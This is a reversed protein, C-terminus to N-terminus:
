PHWRMAIAPRVSLTQNAAVLRVQPVVALHTSFQFAVDVGAMIGPSYSTASFEEDITVPGAAPLGLVPQGPTTPLIRPPISYTYSLTVEERQRRFVMGALYTITTRRSGGQHWGAAVFLDTVSSAQRDVIGLSSDGLEDETVHEGQFSGELRLSVSPTIFVGVAVAGGPALRAKSTRQTSLGIPFAATSEEGPQWLRDGNLDNWLYSPNSSSLSGVNTPSGDASPAFLVDALPGAQIFVGSNQAAAFTPLLVAFLAASVLKM